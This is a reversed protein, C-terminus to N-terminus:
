FSANYTNSSLPLPFSLNLENTEEQCLCMEWVSREKLWLLLVVTWLLPENFNCFNILSHPTFLLREGPVISPWCVCDQNLRHTSHSCLHESVMRPSSLETDEPFVICVMELVHGFKTWKDLWLLLPCLSFFSPNLNASDLCFVYHQFRPSAVLVNEVKTDENTFYSYKSFYILCLSLICLM